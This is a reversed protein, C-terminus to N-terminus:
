RDMDIEILLIHIVQRTIWQVLDGTLVKGIQLNQLQVDGVSIM